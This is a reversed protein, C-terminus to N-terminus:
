ILWSGDSLFMHATTLEKLREERALRFQRNHCESASGDIEGEAM